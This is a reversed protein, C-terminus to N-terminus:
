LPNETTVLTLDWARLWPGILQAVSFEHPENCKPESYDGNSVGVYIAVAEVAGGPRVIYVPGGSDGCTGDATFRVKNTDIAAVPGCEQKGSRIGFHCLTDGTEIKEALGLVPHGDADSTLPIKGTNDLTILGIDYDNWDNGGYISETFTGVTPYTYIGGHHIAVTGPGGPENCHGAVLLGSRGESTRVLFGATCSVSGSGDAFTVDIGIGPGIAKAAPMPIFPRVPHAHYSWFAGVMIAVVVVAIGVRGALVLLPNRPPEADYSTGGSTM